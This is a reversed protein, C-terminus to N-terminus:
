QVVLVLLGVAVEVVVSVLDPLGKVKLVRTLGKNKVVKSGVRVKQPLQLLLFFQSLDLVLRSYSFKLKDM